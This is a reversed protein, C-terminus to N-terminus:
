PGPPAAEEPRAAADAAGASAPRGSSAQGGGAGAEGGAARSAPMARPWSVAISAGGTESTGIRWRGGTARAIADGIALGLGAGGGSGTARHFRDFIRDREAEPIGPGSDDVRVRVRGGDDDVVVAVSGAQPAYKCANDLLVGLLRDLWDPPAKVVQGGSAVRLQLALHRTEAVGAFRDVAQAALVGVDVLDASPHAGTADFRALWLLDEVLKRMRRSEADVREFGRRYWAEDRPQALALSTQAEIVALPTRLEHSADATFELQRIRAREIPAAVRRGIAVAGLFVFALLIPAIILEAQVINNQADTVSWIVEGLVIRGSGATVGRLRVPQSSGALTISTTVSGEITRLAAPLEANSAASNRPALSAVTGDAYVVWGLLQESPRGQPGGLSGPEDGQPPPDKGSLPGLVGALQRDVQSMLNQTVMAYVGVSIALYLLAVLVTSGFAVRISSRGVEPAQISM